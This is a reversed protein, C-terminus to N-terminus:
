HPLKTRLLGYVWAGGLAGGLAVLMVPLGSGVLAYMPGPCAGLLGWGLGFCIGGIAHQVSPRRDEHDSFAIDSGSATRVGRRRMLAVGLAGVLVAGGLVGYMHVAQFRFMEQIRFWSAVESKIFVIGLYLGVLFYPVLSETRPAETAVADATMAHPSM